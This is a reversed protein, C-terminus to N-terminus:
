FVTTDRRKPKVLKAGHFVTLISIHADLKYIVRYSGVILERIESRNLEPVIRGSQPYKKLRSVVKQVKQAWKLAAGKKDHSILTVIRNLDEQAKPSWIIKM